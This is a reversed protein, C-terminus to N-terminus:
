VHVSSRVYCINAPLVRSRNTHSMFFVAFFLMVWHDFPSHLQLRPPVIQILMYVLRQISRNIISVPNPFVLLDQLHWSRQIKERAYEDNTAKNIEMATERLRFLVKEIEAHSEPCDIVPLHKFLDAFLLPYKCVRQIPQYIM